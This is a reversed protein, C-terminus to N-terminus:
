QAEGMWRYSNDITKSGNQDRNLHDYMTKPYLTTMDDVSGEAGDEETIKVGSICVEGEGKKGGKWWLNGDGTVM